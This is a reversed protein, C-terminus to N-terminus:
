HVTASMLMQEIVQPATQDIMTDCEEVTLPKEIPRARSHARRTAARLRELDKPELDHIISTRHDIITQYAKVEAVGQLLAIGRKAWEPPTPVKPDGPKLTAFDIPGFIVGAGKASEFFARVIEAKIAREGNEDGDYYWGAAEFPEGIEPRNM